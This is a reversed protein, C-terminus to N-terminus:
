QPYFSDLTHENSEGWCKCDVGNVRSCSDEVKEAGRDWSRLDRSKSCSQSGLVRRSKLGVLSM